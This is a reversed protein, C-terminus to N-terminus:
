DIRLAHMPDVRSARRSPVWCAALSVAVLLVPVATFTAIDWPKVGYLLSGALRAAALALPLGLLVAIMALRMGGEVVMAQVQGARAGLAMRVGIEKTRRSVTYSMVGYLGITALLVGSVGFVTFIVGVFRPLFLAEHMHEEMTTTNFIALSADVAHIEHEMARTLAVSDGEYRVMVTYGDSSPDKAINQDLSRYLVARQNEGITRAKTNKVVGVITYDIGGGKVIHGVPNESDFFRRVFEENVVGVKPAAPNEDGIDRGAIRAIGLTEFYEPGAMYLEVGTEGQPKPRGPATFGDSRHGMSLPVGDTITASMVGPLSTMRERVSHLMVTAREPTYHHLQPDIAMMVVGRSRFGVDMKAASRLSRLFLGSACLLVLSLTIQTVVLVGRLSWRRGPRALAEEGKLANPMVPRSASWAPVFGCVAGAVVSLVFAYLVVRWDVHVSIDMGIPVPLKFSSLAYTAWMSLLVGVVGGGLALLLSELLLQRLLQGRTAGLSLRVAMERQREAGQALLLNAVNACAILLVMLAVVSVALLFMKLAPEDRGLSGLKRMVVGTDKDTDAHQSALRASIVELERAAAALTVGPKLRAVGHLWQTHRSEPDPSNAMLEKLDGVPVWFQPDLVTDLGRFGKPM